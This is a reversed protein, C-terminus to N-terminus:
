YVELIEINLKGVIKVLEAGKGISGELLKIHTADAPFQGFSSDVTIWKGIFVENWAHYYFKEDLYVLGLVIKTPIEYARSLAAFLVAHENCDGQRSDLVDLANPVGFAPKKVVNDYVWNNIRNIGDLKNESKSTISRMTDIIKKDESQVFNTPLLYNQYNNKLKYNGPSQKEFSDVKVEYFGKNYYQSYNDVIFLESDYFEDKDLQKLSFKLYKTERPKGIKVNSKISTKSSIDYVEKPLKSVIDKTSKIAVFDPPIFEKIKYGDETIWFFTEAELFKIKVKYAQYTKSQTIVKEKELVNLEALLKDKSFDSIILLPDFLYFKHNTGSILRGNSLWKPIYSTVIYDKDIDINFEINNSNESKAANITLKGNKSFGVLKYNQDSSKVVYDFSKLQGNEIFYNSKNIVEDTHNFVKINLKSEDYISIKAEDQKIVTHTFGIAKKDKDSQAYIEMWHDTIESACLSNNIFM